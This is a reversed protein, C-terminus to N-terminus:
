PEVSFMFRFNYNGEIERIPAAFKLKVNVVHWTKSCDGPDIGM